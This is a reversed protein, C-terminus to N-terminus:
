CLSELREVPCTLVKSIMRDLSCPHDPAPWGRNTSSSRRHSGHNPRTPPETTAVSGSGPTTTGHQARRTQKTRPRARRGQGVRVWQDSVGLGGAWPENIMLDISPAMTPYPPRVYWYGQSVHFPPRLLDFLHGIEEGLVLSFVPLTQM